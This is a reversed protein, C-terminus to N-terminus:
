RLVLEQELDVLVAAAVQVTGVAVAVV